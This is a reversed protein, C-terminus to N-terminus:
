HLAPADHQVTRVVTSWDEGRVAIAAYAHVGPSALEQVFWGDLRADGRPNEVPTFSHPSPSVRFSSLDISLGGGVAKIVAEKATWTRYFAAATDSANQVVAVEEPAFFREAVALRDTSRRDVEVDIGVPSERAFALAIFPGSHTVNFEIERSALLPKGQEGYVLELALPERHLYTGLLRRLTARAVIARARDDDFRFRSARDREDQRLFSELSALRGSDVDARTMWVHLEREPIM